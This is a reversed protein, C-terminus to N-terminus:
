HTPRQVKYKKLKRDLTSREIGLIQAAQSKNWGTEDLTRLIHQQELEGLSINSPLSSLNTATSQEMPSELSSFQIDKEEIVDDRGLIVAREITNQLERVNGPWHYERLRNMARESISRPPRATQLTYRSLFFEALLPVDELRDRLPPVEIQVVHLRFYLDKRFKGQNIAEELNRNTAAIVRVDTNVEQQGGVREFPHGELVRLFKAQMSAGMEGVEDLFLTGGDAQEFKGIKQGIAGTFSGREHGFLESELLTETLAACNMTVFPRNARNSREHLARAVLEKGVGSEGRV